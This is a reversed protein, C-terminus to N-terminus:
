RRGPTGKTVLRRSIPPWNYWSRQTLGGSLVRNSDSRPKAWLQDRDRALADVDICGCVIPWFRRGGTEDRLYTGHNVTGAFVCQRPSEVLRMGYPPRFRDTTRSIFAKIRAVEAHGLNDLESLEIIWVGRTQMAADKSGLDALEDTFYEGAITRLATSKRIGQPGELILCCDAKAGPRFIRAVASILWRSGVARSYETDDAGLYTTLWRDVREIGDWYLSNLYTRVPHFPHDRAATQVAQGAVDVSVLIGQRQLWEAALRDEHDTWEGKPVIGWPAPRLVVTGLGFENFALV